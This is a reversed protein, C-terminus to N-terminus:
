RISLREFLYSEMNDGLYLAYNQSDCLVTTMTEIWSIDLKFPLHKDLFIFILCQNVEGLALLVSM